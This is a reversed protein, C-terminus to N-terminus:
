FKLWVERSRPGDFECLYIGQWTGLQLRGDEIIIQASAGTCIARMHAATNGEAHEYARDNWPMIKEFLYKLDHQVDPDANEQIMVGATTHPIFVTAVGSQVGAKEVEAAVLRTIDIFQTHEQTRVAFRIM